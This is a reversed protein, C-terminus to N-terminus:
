NFKPINGIVPVGMIETISDMDKVTDDLIYRLVAIILGLILGILGAVAANLMVNPSVPSDPMRAYDIM